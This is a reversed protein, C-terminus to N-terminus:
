QPLKAFDYIAKFNEDKMDFHMKVPKGCIYCMFHSSFENLAKEYGNKFGENRANEIDLLFDYIEDIQNIIFQNMSINMSAAKNKIAEYKERLIRVSILPHKEQYRYYAPPYKRKIVHDIKNKMDKNDEM